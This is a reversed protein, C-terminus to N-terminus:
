HYVLFILLLFRNVKKKIQLKPLSGDLVEWHNFTKDLYKRLKSIVFFRSFKKGFLKTIEFYRFFFWFLHKGFLKTIEFDRFLSFFFWSFNKRYPMPCLAYPKELYNRLKSITFIDSSKNGFLKTIEYNKPLRSEHLEWHYFINDLCNRLKSM